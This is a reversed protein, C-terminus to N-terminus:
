KRPFMDIYAYREPFATLAFTLEKTPSVKAVVTVARNIPVNYLNAVGIVSTRPQAPSPAGNDDIYFRGFNPPPDLMTVEVGAAGQGKCDQVRVIVNALAPDPRLDPPLAQAALAPILTLLSDPDDDRPQRNAYYDLASAISGNAENIEEVKVRYSVAVPRVQIGHLKLQGTQPNYESTTGPLPLACTPDISASKCAASTLKAPPQQFVTLFKLNVTATEGQPAPRNDPEDWCGWTEDVCQGDVCQVTPSDGCTAAVTEPTCGTPSAMTRCLGLECTYSSAAGGLREACDATTACQDRQADVVLGCGASLALAAVAATRM